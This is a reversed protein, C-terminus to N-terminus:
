RQAGPQRDRVISSVANADSSDPKVYVAKFEDFFEKVAFAQRPAAGFAVVVLAGVMVGWRKRGCM